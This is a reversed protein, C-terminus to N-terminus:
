ATTSSRQRECLPTANSRPSPSRAANARLSSEARGNRRSASPSSPRWTAIASTWFTITCSADPTRLGRGIVQRLRRVATNRTDLFSSEVEGDLVVPREYPVRPVVISKWPTPTDLGAWAGAAILVRSDGMRAAAETATETSGRVTAGDVLKGLAEALAHSPTVVLVTGTGAAQKITAQTLGLWEPTDVEAEAVVFTLQGHRQPEIISSLDSQKQIGLARKFDDFRDGVTLTASVFAVENHNAIRKLLRGPLKHFLMIGGDDTVGARHYWAPEDIAELIM